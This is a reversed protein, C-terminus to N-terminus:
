RVIKWYGSKIFSMDYESLQSETTNKSIDVVRNSSYEVGEFIPALVEYNSAVIKETVEADYKITAQGQIEVDKTTIINGTFDTGDKIVVKGNTVILATTNGSVEYESGNKILIVKGYRQDIENEYNNIIKNFKIQNEVTKIVDGANYVATSDVGSLYGMSLVEIAYRSRLERILETDGALNGSLVEGDSDIAAGVSYVHGIKVGGTKVTKEESSDYYSKFYEAKAQVSSSNEITEVLQLPNYYKLTIKDEYGPVIETYALYNGKVALSEGTQYKEDITDIYAVGMIYADNSINLNSNENNIIISSSEKAAKAPNVANTFTYENIGYYNKLDVTSGNSNLSLDNDTILDNAVTLKNEGTDEKTISPGVYTNLSFINEAAVEAKNRVSLTAATFIDGSTIKLKGSDILIGGNYKEFTYIPAASYKENGKVWIDGVVDTEGKVEMDGDATIVKGDYVPYINIQKKNVDLVKNEKYAPAEVNFSNSITKTNKLEGNNGTNEFTSEVKICIKKSANDYIYDKIKIEAGCSDYLNEQWLTKTGLGDELLYKGEEIGKALDSTDKVKGLYNLFEAKFKENIEDYLSETYEVDKYEEEIEAISYTIAAQSNKLIINYVLDLGSDSKYLNQLRRSENVRSKYDSAAMTLIATGVTFLAAMIVIVVVMSSGKKRKKM